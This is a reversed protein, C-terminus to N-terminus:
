PLEFKVPETRAVEDTPVVACEHILTTAGNRNGHLKAFAATQVTNVAFDLLETPACALLNEASYSLSDKMTKCIEVASLDDM